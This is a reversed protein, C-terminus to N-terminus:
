GENEGGFGDRDEQVYEAFRVTRRSSQLLDAGFKRTGFSRLRPQPCGDGSWWVGMRAKSLRKTATRDQVLVTAEHSISEPAASRALATEANRDPMLYEEVPARCRYKTKGEQSQM